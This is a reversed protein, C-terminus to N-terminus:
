FDMLLAGYFKLDNHEFDGETESEYENEAGFKLSLGRQVDVAITYDISSVWRFEGLDGLSPYLMTAASLAQGETVQWTLDAGIKAEPELTDDYDSGFEYNAGVGSRLTVQLDDKRILEYGPGIHAAIRHDWAEFDDFEYSADASVFWRSHNLLWDHVLAVKVENQSTEGNQEATFYGASFRTRSVDERERAARYIIRFDLKQTNGEAGNLGVELQQDWESVEELDLVPTETAAPPESEAAAVPAPPTPPPTAEDDEVAVNAVGAAPITMTGLVPHELTVTQESQGTVQGTLTEGTTLTVTDAQAPLAVVLGAILTLLLIRTPM